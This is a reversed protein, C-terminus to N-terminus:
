NQYHYPWSRKSFRSYGGASGGRFTNSYGGRNNMWESQYSLTPPPGDFDTPAPPHFANDFPRKNTDFSPFPKEPAPPPVPQDPAFCFGSDANM